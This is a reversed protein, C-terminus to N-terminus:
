FVSFARLCNIQNLDINLPILGIRNIKNDTKQFLIFLSAPLCPPLYFCYLTYSLPFTLIFQFFLIDLSHNGNNTKRQSQHFTAFSFSDESFDSSYVLLFYNECCIFYFMTVVIQWDFYISLNSRDSTEDGTIRIFISNEHQHM